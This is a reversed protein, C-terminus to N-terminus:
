IESTHMGGRVYLHIEEHSIYLIYAEKVKVHVWLKERYEYDVVHFSQLLIHTNIHSVLNKTYFDNTAVVLM